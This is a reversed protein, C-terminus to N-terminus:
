LERAKKEKEKGAFLQLAGRCKGSSHFCGRETEELMFLGGCVVMIWRITNASSNAIRAVGRAAQGYCYIADWKRFKDRM